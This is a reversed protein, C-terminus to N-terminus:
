YRHEGRRSAELSEYTDLDAGPDGQTKMWRDLEASLEAQIRAHKPDGAFNQM